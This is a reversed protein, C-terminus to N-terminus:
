VDQSARPPDDRPPDEDDVPDQPVLLVDRLPALEDRTWAGDGNTDLRELLKRMRAGRSQPLEDPTIKGDGNADTRDFLSRGGFGADLTSDAFNPLEIGFADLVLDLM